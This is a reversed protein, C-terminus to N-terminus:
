FKLVQMKELLEEKKQHAVKAVLKHSLLLEHSEGKSLKKVHRLNVLFSKHCRFFYKDDLIDEITGINKSCILKNGDSSCITTYNGEAECMVIDTINLFSYGETTPIVLRHTAENGSINSLFVQVQEKSIQVSTKKRFKEIANKLDESEVPKVLFELCSAKIARLAYDNYATTFIVEFMPDPIHKFLDFGNENNLEIDLFILQPKQVAIGEVAAAINYYTDLVTVDKAHLQLLRKFNNLSAIENEIIVAQIM